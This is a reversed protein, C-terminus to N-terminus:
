RWRSKRRASQSGNSRTSCRKTFPRLSQLLPRQLGLDGCSRDGLDTINELEARMTENAAVHGIGRNKSSQQFAIARSTDDQGVLRVVDLDSPIDCTATMTLKGHRRTLHAVSLEEGKVFCPHRRNPWVALLDALPPGPPPRWRSRSSPRRSAPWSIAPGARRRTRNSGRQADRERILLTKKQLKM